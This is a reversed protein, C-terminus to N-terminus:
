KKLVELKVRATGSSSLGIQKAAAKSLDIIRGKVFPGRDNIRVVVSKGNRLNTVQVKSGFPLTKHAATLAHHNFKEGSATRRGNFKGGYFSALGIMKDPLKNSNAKSAHKAHHNLQKAHVILPMNLVSVM